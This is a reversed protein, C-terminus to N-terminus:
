LRLDVIELTADADFKVHTCKEFLSKDEHPHFGRKECRSIAQMGGPTTLRFTQDDDYKVSCVIAIAEHLMTQYMCSTHLDVSSLFATQSPHTHIWGITMCGNAEMYNFAPLDDVVSCSDAEGTQPPMVLATISLVGNKLKGALIGCTERNSESNFKARARFEPILRAPIHVWRLGDASLGEEPKVDFDALGDLSPYLSSAGGVGAATPATTYATSYASPPQYGAAAPASPMLPPRGVAMAATAAAAAAAVTGVRENRRHVLAALRADLEDIQQVNADRATKDTVAQRASAMEKKADDAFKEKVIVTLSENKSLAQRCLESAEAKVTANKPDNFGAHKPMVELYIIAARYYLQFARQLNGDDYEASGNLMSRSMSQTYVSLAEYHLGLDKAAKDALERLRKMKINVISKIEEADGDIPAAADGGDM